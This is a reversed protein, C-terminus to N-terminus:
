KILNIRYGIGSINKILQKYTKKRLEKVVSRLADNTMSGKWINEDLEEYSVAKNENLIMYNLFAGEKNTLPIIKKEKILTKNYKDYIFENSLTLINSQNSDIDKIFDRFTEQVFFKDIPKEIYKILELDVAKHLCIDSIEKKSTAVIHVNSNERIEKLFEIDKNTIIIDIKKEKFLDLAELNNNVNFVNQCKTNLYEITDNEIYSQNTYLINLYKLEKMEKGLAYNVLKIIIQQM